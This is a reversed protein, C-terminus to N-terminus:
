KRNSDIKQTDVGMEKIEKQIGWLKDLLKPSHSAVWALFIYKLFRGAFVFALIEWLPLEMLAAMAVAPHQMFPSIAVIFLTISGWDQMLRDTWIWASSQTINPLIQLLFPLGHVELVAALAWAGLSSGIATFTGM